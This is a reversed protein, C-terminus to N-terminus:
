LKDGSPLFHMDVPALPDKGTSQWVDCLDSRGIEMLRYNTQEWEVLPLIRHEDQLAIILTKNAYDTVGAVCASGRVQIGNEAWVANEVWFFCDKYVVSPFREFNYEHKVKIKKNSIAAMLKTDANIQAMLVDNSDPPKVTGPACINQKNDNCTKLKAYTTDKGCSPFSVLLSVAILAGINHISPIM